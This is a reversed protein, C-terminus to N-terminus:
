YIEQLKKRMSQVVANVRAKTIGLDKAIETQMYGEYMKIAIVRERQNLTNNLTEIFVGSFDQEYCLFSHLSGAENDGYAEEDLSANHLTAFYMRAGAVRHLSENTLESIEEDSLEWSHNREVDWALRIIGTPVHVIQRKDHLRTMYGKVYQYAYTIFKNGSDPDYRDFAEILGIFGEQALDEMYHKDRQCMRHAHKYVLKRYQRVISERTHPQGDILKAM